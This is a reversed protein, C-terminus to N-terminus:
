YPQPPAVMLLPGEGRWTLWTEVSFIGFEGDLQAPSAFHVDLYNMAPGIEVAAEVLSEALQAGFGRLILQVNLRSSQSSPQLRLRLGGVTHRRWLTPGFSRPRGNLQLLTPAKLVMFDTNIITTRHPDYAKGPDYHQLTMGLERWGPNTALFDSAALFPGAQAINDVVIFGGPMITRAACGIDFLAYEYAHNGDVFVLGPSIGKQEQEWYFPMSDTTYLKVHQLLQRPWRKLVEKIQDGCYPDVTHVLGGGNAHLARCIAETTGARFCGIEFVDQPRLIRLLCYLLAQSQPSVLSRSTVPNDTFFETAVAFEPAAMIAAIPNDSDLDVRPSQVDGIAKVAIPQEPATFQRELKTAQRGLRDGTAIAIRSALSLGRRAARVALPPRETGTM